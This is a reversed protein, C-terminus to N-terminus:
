LFPIACGDARPDSGAWYIGTQPHRWIVQARGYMMRNNGRAIDVIEHGKQQLGQVIEDYKDILQGTTQDLYKGYHEEFQVVSKQCDSAAQTKGTHMLYWRPADVALQPDLHYDLLNRLLQVHGMPQMFGGMNGFVAYLTQDHEHLALGPIITHYPRKRPALQNPHGRVLSFNHGRNQLTFGCGIPMIGSGFGMYNSNIMSCANGDNDVVSLYVTEGTKFATLDGPTIETTQDLSIDQVRQQAYENSLLIDVPIKDTRPDGIYQLGDCYARRMCELSKHIEDIHYKQDYKAEFFNSSPIAETSAANVEVSSSTTPPLRSELAQIYQLALLVALGQSPPPTQFVRIGHYVVSIPDALATEHQLLDEATFVGGYAHTAELIANGIRGSYFGEKAGLTGLTRFTEALDPNRFWRGAEVRKNEPRLVRIAEEGQLFAMSWQDATIPHIPYGDEALKIAPQLVELLSLKGHKSVLDEWLAASGPVTICLGSRPDLPQLGDGIGLSNLYDL